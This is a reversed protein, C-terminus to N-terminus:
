WPVKKLGLLFAIINLLLHILPTIIILFIVTSLTPIYVISGLAIAGVVFDLQDILLLSQGSKYGLRRKFFSKILDGLLAGTALLFGLATYTTVSGISYSTGGIFYGIVNGAVTGFLIGLFLGRFTKGKGFIRNKRLKRGFDLPLGGGFLAASSNAIYAPLIYLISFLIIYAFDM